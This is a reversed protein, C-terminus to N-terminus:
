EMDAVGLLNCSIPRSPWSPLDLATTLTLLQLAENRLHHEVESQLKESQGCLNSSASNSPFFLEAAKSNCTASAISSSSLKNKPLQGTSSSSGNFREVGSGVLGIAHPERFRRSFQFIVALQSVGHRRCWALKLQYATITLLIFGLSHGFLFAVLSRKAYSAGNWKTPEWM